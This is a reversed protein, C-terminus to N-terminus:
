VTNHTKWNSLKVSEDHVEKDGKRKAFGDQSM